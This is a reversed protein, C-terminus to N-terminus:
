GDFAERDQLRRHALPRVLSALLRTGVSDESRGRRGPLLLEFGDTVGLAYADIRALGQGLAAELAPLFALPEAPLPPGLSVVARPRDQEGFVYQIAV